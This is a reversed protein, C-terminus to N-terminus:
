VISVYRFLMGSRWVSQLLNLSEGLRDCLPGCRGLRELDVEGVCFLFEVKLLFRCELM